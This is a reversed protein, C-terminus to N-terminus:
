AVSEPNPNCESSNAEVKGRTRWKALVMFSSAAVIGGIFMFTWNVDPDPYTLYAKSPDAPDYHVLRNPRRHFGYGANAARDADTFEWNGITSFRDSQYEVGAVMYRYTVTTQYVRRNILAWKRQVPIFGTAEVMGRTTPWTSIDEGATRPIAGYFWVALGLVFLPAAFLPRQFFGM